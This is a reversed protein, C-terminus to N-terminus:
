EWLGKGGGLGGKNLLVIVAFHFPEWLFSSTLAGPFFFVFFFVPCISPSPSGECIDM